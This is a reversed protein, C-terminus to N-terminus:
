AGRRVPELARVTARFREGREEFDRFQDYSTCGPSLLVVDGPRALDRALQVALEISSVRHQPVTAAGHARAAQSILEAAEGFLILHRVRRGVVAAWREWPLHKDRGGALLIIPETFSELAAISREPSTAISDNVYRVGAIEAVVELRHPVGTFQRLAARLPEPDIGAARAIACACLANAVNHRGRLRLATAPLVRVEQGDQRLVLWAAADLYAGEVPARLSFRLRQAAGPAATVVPDDANLVAWDTAAQHAVIQFKAATYAEMTHHRDLHNPTINTIAAIHPSQRLPELQFSSLELIVWADPTIADLQSLLPVGINGGLFVRRGAERFIAATLASTTTKGSSGTIGVIPAPCHALFLETASSLPLGRQRAAAVLPLEPAVGPSLFVVDCDALLELPHGGLTYTVPLDSLARLAAALEAEPRRDTAHVVAGARVLYRVLDIGERGLGVVLARQGRITGPLSM